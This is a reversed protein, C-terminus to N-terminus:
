RLAPDPAYRAQRQETGGLRDAALPSSESGDV